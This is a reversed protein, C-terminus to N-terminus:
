STPPSQLIAAVGMGGATCISILGRHPRAPVSSETGRLGGNSVEGNKHLAATKLAKALTAAIRAGTAAFPHGLALSGGFVNMKARDIAGLANPAKLRQQCFENSEWAKLTCLVQAAFAEHIEYFDFDQLKLKQRELLQHVAYAPAMLLGEEKVFDVAATQGDVFEALVPLGRAHAWEPTALLVAASGDTLATSNGATMTAESSKGFVTKLTSLKEMTTDARVLSDKNLKGFPVVLDQYFGEQYARHAKQHSEVALQDQEARTVRWQQAMLECSQGMTLGTRPEVIQPSQPLLDKPRLQLFQQARESFSKARHAAVMVHNFKRSFVFPLDSNSDVGGAIGSDIQGLRIKNAVTILAELSTGCAQQVDFASTSPHLGSSLTAERAMNWDSSHKMVAGVVVEGLVEGQLSYKSVLAKLSAEMLTQVPIGLYSSLSKTFPIRVGGVLIAKRLSM